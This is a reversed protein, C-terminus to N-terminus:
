NYTFVDDRTHISSVIENMDPNVTLVGNKVVLPTVAQEQAEAQKTAENQAQTVTNAFGLDEAQDGLREEALQEAQESTITEHFSAQARAVPEQVDTPAMWKRKWSPLAAPINKARPHANRTFRGLFIDATVNDYDRRVEQPEKWPVNDPRQPNSAVTELTKNSVQFDNYIKAAPKQPRDVAQLQQTEKAGKQLQFISMSGVPKEYKPTARSNKEVTVSGFARGEISKNVVNQMTFNGINPAAGGFPRVYKSANVVGAHASAMTQMQLDNQVRQMPTYPQDAVELKLPQKYSPLMSVHMTKREKQVLQKPTRTLHTHVPHVGQVTRLPDFLVSKTDLTGEKVAITARRSVPVQYNPPVARKVPQMHSEPRAHDAPKMDLRTERYEPAAFLRSRQFRVNQFATLSREHKGHEGFTTTRPRPDM